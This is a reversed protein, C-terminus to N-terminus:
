FPNQIVTMPCLNSHSLFSLVWLPIVAMGTRPWMQKMSSAIPSRSTTSCPVMDLGVGTAGEGARGSAPIALPLTPTDKASHGPQPSTYGSALLHCGCICLTAIVIWRGSRGNLSKTNQTSVSAATSAWPTSLECGRGVILHRPSSIPKPGKVHTPHTSSVVLLVGTAQGKRGGAQSPHQVRSRQRM